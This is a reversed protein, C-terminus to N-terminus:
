HGMPDFYAEWTLAGAMKSKAKKMFMMANEHSSCNMLAVGLNFFAHKNVTGHDIAKRLYEAAEKHNGMDCLVTGYNILTTEDDPALSLARELLRKAEDFNLHWKSSDKWTEGILSKVKKNIDEINM